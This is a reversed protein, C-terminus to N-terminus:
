LLATLFMRVLPSRMFRIAAAIGLFVGGVFFVTSPVGGILKLAPLSICAVLGAVALGHIGKRIRRGLLGAVGEVFVVLSPLLVLLIFVLLLIDVPESRRAVFFEANRSLLDFLPALVFSFLVFVHLCDTLFESKQKIKDLM